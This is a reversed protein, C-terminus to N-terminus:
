GEPEVHLRVAADVVEMGPGGSTAPEPRVREGVLSGLTAATSNVM